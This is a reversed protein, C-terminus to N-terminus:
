KRGMENLVADLFSRDAIDSVKLGPQLAGAAVLFDLTAQTSEAELGGNVDWMKRGPYMEASAQAASDDLALYKAIAQRLTDKDQVQRWAQLLARLFDKVAEPQRKGFGVNVYYGSLEIQPMEEAFAALAHFRGPAQRQLNLLDDLEVPSADAQNALLAAVRNSTGAIILVQPTAGPCNNKIYQKVLATTVGGSSAIAVNKGNLDQCSKIEQRAILAYTDRDRGSIARVSAGKAIAAWTTQHSAGAIDLSGSALATTLLEFQQFRTLDITYGEAKLTEMALLFPVDSANDGSGSGIRLTGKPIATAPAPSSGAPVAPQASCAGLRISVLSVIALKFKM